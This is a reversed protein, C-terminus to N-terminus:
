SYYYGKCGALFDVTVQLATPVGFGGYQFLFIVRELEGLCGVVLLRDLVRGVLDFADFVDLLGFGMRVADAPFGEIDSRGSELVTIACEAPQDAQVFGALVGSGIPPLYPCRLPDAIDVAPHQLGYVANTEVVIGVPGNIRIHQDVGHQHFFLM